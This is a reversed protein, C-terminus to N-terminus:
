ERKDQAKPLAGEPLAGKEVIQQRLKEYEEESILQNKRAEDLDLLQRGVTPPTVSANGVNFLCGTALTLALLAGLATRPISRTEPIRSTM